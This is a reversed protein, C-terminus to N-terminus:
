RKKLISTWPNIWSITYIKLKHKCLVPFQHVWHKIRMMKDQVFIQLYKRFTAFPANVTIISRTKVQFPLYASVQIVLITINMKRLMIHHHPRM